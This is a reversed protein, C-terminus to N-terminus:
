SQLDTDNSIEDEVILRDLTDKAFLKPYDDVFRGMVFRVAGERIVSTRSQCKYKKCYRDIADLERDSLSITIKNNRPEKYAIKKM